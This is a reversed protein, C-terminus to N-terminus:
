ATVPTRVHARGIEGGGGGTSVISDFTSNAGNNGAADTGGITGGNGVVAPYNTSPNLSHGTKVSMGGAGGGGGGNSGSSGGGGAGGGAVVLVDVSLTSSGYFIFNTTGSLFTHVRYAVGDLLYETITGGDSRTIDSSFIGKSSLM